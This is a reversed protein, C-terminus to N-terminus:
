YNNVFEVAQWGPDDFLEILHSYPPAGPSDALQPLTFTVIPLQNIKLFNPSHLVRFLVVRRSHIAHSDKERFLLVERRRIIGWATGSTFATTGRRCIQLFPKAQQARVAQFVLLFFLEELASSGHLLLCGM